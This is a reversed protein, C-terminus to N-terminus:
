YQRIFNMFRLFFIRMKRTKIYVPGLGMETGLGESSRTECAGKFRRSRPDRPEGWPRPTTCFRAPWETADARVQCKTLLFLALGPLTEDVPVFLDTETARSWWLSFRHNVIICNDTMSCFLSPCVFRSSIDRFFSFFWILRKNDFGVRAISRASDLLNVRAYLYCRISKSTMVRWKARAHSEFVRDCLCMEHM